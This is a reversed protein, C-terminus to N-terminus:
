PRSAPETDYVFREREFYRFDFPQGSAAQVQEWHERITRRGADDLPKTTGPRLGGMMLRIPLADGFRQRITEIVPAFGRLGSCMPDAFYILHPGSMGQGPEQSPLESSASKNASLREDRALRNSNAPDPGLTKDCPEVKRTVV